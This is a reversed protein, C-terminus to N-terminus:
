RHLFILRLNQENPLQELNNAFDEIPPSSTEIDLKGQNALILSVLLYRSRDYDNPLTDLMNNFDIDTGVRNDFRDLLEDGYQVTDFNRYKQEEELVVAMKAEWLQIRESFKSIAAESAAWYKRLHYAIIEDYGMQSPPRETLADSSIQHDFLVSDDYTNRIIPRNLKSALANAGRRKSSILHEFGAYMNMLGLSNELEDVDLVDGLNQSTDHVEIDDDMNLINEDEFDDVDDDNDFFLDEAIPQQEQGAAQKEGDNAIEPAVLTLDNDEDEDNPHDLVPDLTQRSARRQAAREAREIAQMEKRRKKRLDTRRKEEEYILPNLALVAQDMLFSNFQGIAFSRKKLRRRYMQTDIYTKVSHENPVGRERCEKEIRRERAKIQKAAITVCNTRKRYPKSQETITEMPDHHDQLIATVSQQQKSHIDSTDVMKAASTRTTLATSSRIIEPYNSLNTMQDAPPEQSEQPPHSHDVQDNDKNEVSQKQQQAGHMDETDMDEMGVDEMDMGEMNMASVTQGMSYVPIEPPFHSFTGDPATSVILASSTTANDNIAMESQQAQQLIDEADEEITQEMLPELQTNFGSIVGATSRHQQQRQEQQPDPLQPLSFQDVLDIHNIDLLAISEHIHCTNVRFDDKKGIQEDQNTRTFLTVNSKEFDSLPVFAIPVLPLHPARYRNFRELYNGMATYNVEPKRKARRRQPDDNEADEANEGEGNEIGDDAGRRRRQKDNRNDEKLQDFFNQAIQLVYEVKKVYVTTTGHILMAAEAFNFIKRRGNQDVLVASDNEDVMKRIYDELTKAIDLDWNNALNKVPQLLFKYREGAGDFDFVETAM